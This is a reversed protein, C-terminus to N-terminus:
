LETNMVNLDNSKVMKMTSYKCVLDVMWQADQLEKEFEIEPTTEKIEVNNSSSKTEAPKMDLDYEFRFSLSDEDDLIEKEEEMSYKPHNIQAKVKEKVMQVLCPVNSAPMSPVMMYMM